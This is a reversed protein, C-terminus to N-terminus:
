GKGINHSHELDVCNLVYFMRVEFQLQARAITTKQSPVSSGGDRTCEM